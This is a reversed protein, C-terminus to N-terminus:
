KSIWVQFLYFFFFIIILFQSEKKKPVPQVAGNSNIAVSEVQFVFCFFLGVYYDEGGGKQKKVGMM